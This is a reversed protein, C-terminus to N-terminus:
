SGAPPSAHGDAERGSTRDLWCAFSRCGVLALRTRIDAALVGPVVAIEFRAATARGIRDPAALQIAVINNLAVLGLLIWAGWPSRRRFVMGAVVLGFALAPLLYSTEIPYRAYLAGTALVVGSAALCLRRERGDSGGITDVDRRWFVVLALAWLTAPLGLLALPKYIVRGLWLAPTWMEDPGAHAQLFSLDGGSTSWSLCYIVGGIVLSTAAAALAARATRWSPEAIVAGALGGLLPLLSALRFWLALAGLLGAAATRGDVAAEVALILALLAFNYDIASTSAALFWPNLALCLLLPVRWPVPVPGALRWLRWLAAASVALTVLNVALAGGTRDLLFVILEHLWYGPHRSMTPVGNVWTATGADLTLYSDNDAGYGLWCLPLATLLFAGVVLLGAGTDGAIAATRRRRSASAAPTM